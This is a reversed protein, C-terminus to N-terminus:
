WRYGVPAVQTYIRVQPLNASIMVAAVSSQPIVTTLQKTEGWDNTGTISDTVCLKNDRDVTYVKRNDDGYAVCAISAGPNYLLQSEFIGKKEHNGAETPLQERLQSNHLQFIAGAPTRQVKQYLCSLAISTGTIPQMCYSHLLDKQIWPPTWHAQRVFNERDQYYVRLTSFSEGAAALQTYHAVPFLGTLGGNYWGRKDKDHCREVLKGGRIYYVRDNKGSDYAIAALGTNLDARGVVGHTGPHWGQRDDYSIQGINGHDDQYCVRINTGEDNSFSYAALPSRSLMAQM